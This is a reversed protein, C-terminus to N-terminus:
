YYYLSLIYNEYIGDNKVACYSNEKNLETICLLKRRKMVHNTPQKPKM